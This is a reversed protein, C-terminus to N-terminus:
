MIQNFPVTIPLCYLNRRSCQYWCWYIGAYIGTFKLIVVSASDSICKTLVIAKTNKTKAVYCTSM